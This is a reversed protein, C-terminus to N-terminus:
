EYAIFEKIKGNNIWDLFYMLPEIIQHRHFLQELEKLTVWQYDITEGELLTIEPHKCHCIYVEYCSTHKFIYDIFTIDDHKLVIGTEERLERLMGASADEGYLVSGGTCEWLLPYTKKPDRKTLLIKGEENITWGHVVLHYFNAPLPVGRRHKKGTKNHKNDYLDWYEDANIDYFWHMAECAYAIGDEDVAKTVFDAIRKLEESGQGMAISLDAHELMEIDNLSDGFAIYGDKDYHKLMKQIGTYKNVDALVLDAYTSQGPIVKIEPIGSYEKYEYGIPAYTIMNIVKQDTYTKVEPFPMHFFTHAEKVYEDPEKNIMWPQSGLMLVANHEEAIKLAREITEKKMYCEFIPNEDKDLVIQGNSLVYGDWDFADAVGSHRLAYM